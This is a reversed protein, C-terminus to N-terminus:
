KCNDHTSSENALQSMQWIVWQSDDKLSERWLFSLNSTIEMSIEDRSFYKGFIFNDFNVFIVFSSFTSFSEDSSNRFNVRIIYNSQSSPMTRIVYDMWSSGLLFPCESIFDSNFLSFLFDHCVCTLKDDTRPDRIPVWNQFQSILFSCFFKLRDNLRYIM